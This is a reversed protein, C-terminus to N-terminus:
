GNLFESIASSIQHYYPREFHFQAFGWKRHLSSTPLGTGVELLNWGTEELFAHYTSLTKNAEFSRAVVEGEPGM